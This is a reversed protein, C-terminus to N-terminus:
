AGHGAGAHDEPDHALSAAPTVPEVHMPNRVWTGVRLNFLTLLLRYPAMQEGYRGM